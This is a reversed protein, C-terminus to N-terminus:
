VDEMGKSRSLRYGAAHLWKAHILSPTKGWAFVKSIIKQIEEVAQGESGQVPPAPSKLARIAAACQDKIHDPRSLKLGDCVMACEEIIANRETPPNAAGQPHAYLPILISGQSEAISKLEPRRYYRNCREDYWALPATEQQTPQALMSKVLEILALETDTFPISQYTSRVVAIIRDLREQFTGQTYQALGGIQESM